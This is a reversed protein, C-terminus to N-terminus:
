WSREGVLFAGLDGLLDRTGLGPVWRLTLTSSVAAATRGASEAGRMGDGRSGCKTPEGRGAPPAHAPSPTSGASHPRGEASQGHGVPPPCLRHEPGQDECRGNLLVIWHMGLLLEEDGLDFTRLGSRALHLLSSSRPRPPVSPPSLM